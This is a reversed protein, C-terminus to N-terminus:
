STQEARQKLGDVPRDALLSEVRDRAPGRVTRVLLSLRRPVDIALSYTARTREQDLEEFTWAGDLNRLDGGERRWRIARPPEYSFRLQVSVKTVQADLKSEVLTPRGEADRELVDVGTMAGHWEPARDLDAAIEFCRTRPAAIERTRSGELDAM